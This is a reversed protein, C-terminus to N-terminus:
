TNSLLNVAECAYVGIAISRIREVKDVRTDLREGRLSLTPIGLRKAINVAGAVDFNRLKGTNHIFLDIRNLAAYVSELSASGLTRIKVTDKSLEAVVYRLKQLFAPDETYVSVLGKVSRTGPLIKTGNVYVSDEDFSYVERLFINAIAGVIGKDIYPKKRDYVSISVAALPIGSVYNLSGDLPDILAIFECRPDEIIVGREETVICLRIGTRRLESIIFEEVVADAKRTTDGSAGVGTIRGIGPDDVLDRLLGAAEGVIRTIEKLLEM